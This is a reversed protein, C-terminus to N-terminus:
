RIGFWKVRNEGVGVHRLMFGGEALQSRITQTKQFLYNVEAEDEILLRDLLQNLRRKTEHTKYKLWATLWYLGVVLLAGLNYPQGDENARIVSCWQVLIYILIPVLVFACVGVIIRKEYGFREGKFDRTLWGWFDMKKFHECLFICMCSAVVLIPYLLSILLWGGIGFLVVKSAFLVSKATDLHSIFLGGLFAIPFTTVGICLAFGLAAM